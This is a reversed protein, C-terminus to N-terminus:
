ITTSPSTITEGEPIITEVRPPIVPTKMQILLYSSFFDLFKKIETITLITNFTEKGNAHDKFEIESIIGSDDKIITFTYNNISNRIHSVLTNIGNDHIEKTGKRISKIIRKTAIWRKTETIIEPTITDLRDQQMMNMMGFFSNVWLDSTYKEWEVLEQRIIEKTREIYDYEQQKFIPMNKKFSLYFFDTTQIIDYLIELIM